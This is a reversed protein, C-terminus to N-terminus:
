DTRQRVPVATDEFLYDKQNVTHVTAQVTQDPGWSGAVVITADDYPTIDSLPEVSFV